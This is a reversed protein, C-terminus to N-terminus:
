QAPAFELEWIPAPAGESSLLYKTGDASYCIAEGQKSKPLAWSRPTSWDVNNWNKNAPLVWEYAHTYTRSVFRTEDPSLDGGTTLYSWATPGAFSYEGIKELTQTAGNQFPAPTKYFRSAGGNKSLLILEGSATAMLTECDAASDPYNLVMKECEVEFKQDKANPDLQPERLRYITINEHRRLNDGIEGVYIWDGSIAIDEWDRNTAGRLLVEAVTEGDRNVLFIEPKGGSDNHTWLLGQASYKRSAALGSSEDIRTDKLECVVRVTPTVAAEDARTATPLFGIGVLLFWRWFKM